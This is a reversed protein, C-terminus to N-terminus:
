QLTEITGNWSSLTIKKISNDSVGAIMDFLAVVVRTAAGYDQRVFNPWIGSDLNYGYYKKCFIGPNKINLESFIADNRGASVNNLYTVDVVYEIITGNVKFRVIDHKCLSKTRLIEYNSLDFIM